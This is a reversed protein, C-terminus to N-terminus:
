STNKLPYGEHRRPIGEKKNLIKSNVHPGQFLQHDSRTPGPTHGMGREAALVSDVTEEGHLGTFNKVPCAAM